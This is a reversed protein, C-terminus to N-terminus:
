AQRRPLLYLKEPTAIQRARVAAGAYLTGGIGFVMAVTDAVLQQDVFAAFDTKSVWFMCAAVTIRQVTRSQFAWKEEPTTPAAPAPAQAPALAVVVGTDDPHQHDLDSPDYPRPM